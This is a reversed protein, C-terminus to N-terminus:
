RLFQESFFVFHCVYFYVFTYNMDKKLFQEAAFVFTSSIDMEFVVQKQFFFPMEPNDQNGQHKCQM